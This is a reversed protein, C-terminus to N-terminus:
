NDKHHQDREYQEMRSYKSRMMQQRRLRKRRIRIMYLSIYLLFLVILVVLLVKFIPTNFFNELLYAYYLVESMSVDSLALLDVTGYTIGNRSLTMTGLKDGKTIPAVIDQKVSLTKEFDEMTLDKPVTADLNSGAVLMLSDTQTSLRIPVEEIEAGEEVLTKSAYNDYAWMFLRKTEPFTLPYPENPLRECGLMVSILKAKKKEAAAVLCYGAQSTHGTKVGKAYGYFHPNNRSLILQNTTLIYLNKGHQHESVKNTVSLNKQATNAIMAFTENKMAEQTIRFLDHATTYHNDDHLGNPNVFHTDTCGLDTARANMKKVFEPISGGVFRALTNAAENGSPLMLGYLLDIVPVEEGVVFGAMSGDSPIGNFDEELVTVKQELDQVNDLVILATMIKTTSAPYRREEANKEYLPMGTVPDGLYVAEAQIMPDEIAQATPVFLLSICLLIMLLAAFHRRLAPFTM